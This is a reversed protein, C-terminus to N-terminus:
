RSSWGPFFSPLPLDRMTRLGPAAHLVKPISNVVISATAIDGHVGGAIRMSLSPRGAIEVADYTEPAGLYAELHHRILPAGRRYGVADQVLGCVQGVEVELFASAVTTRAIKPTVVDTVRDINWGLADGIMTISERMGVHRVRGSAVGRLFEARSMGAGIKQQFPLRRMRADQVRTVTVREVRECAATLMIPLADMVFGPNVGTGLVAVGAKRAARDIQAALRPQARSPYALEETTSVIPTKAKLIVRLQPWVIELSSSTCHVVVDPRCQAMATAVDALVPVRLRRTLGLLEGVDRGIKGPDIDVAGVLSLGDRQAVQRAVAAGIPGLGFQLIRIRPM